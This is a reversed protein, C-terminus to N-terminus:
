KALLSLKDVDIRFFQLVSKQQAMIWGSLLALFIQSFALQVITLSMVSLTLSLHTAVLVTYYLYLCLNVLLILGCQVGKRALSSFRGRIQYVAVFTILSPILSTGM